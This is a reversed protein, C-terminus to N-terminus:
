FPNAQTVTVHPHCCSFEENTLREDLSILHGVLIIRIIKHNCAQRKHNLKSVRTAIVEGHSDRIKGILQTEKKALLCRKGCALSALRLSIFFVLSFLVQDSSLKYKM